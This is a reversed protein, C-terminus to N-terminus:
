RRNFDEESIGSSLAQDKRLRDRLAERAGVLDSLEHEVIEIRSSICALSATTSIGPPVMVEGTLTNYRLELNCPGPLDVKRIAM